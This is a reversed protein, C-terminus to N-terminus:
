ALLSRLVDLTIESVDNVVRHAQTAQEGVGVAVMGAAIISEVGAAADEVGICEAPTVGLKQAAVLFVEPDPKSRTIDTGDAVADVHENLGTRQLVLAANRSSSAIGRAIGASKLATLLELSGNLVDASTMTGIYDVYYGNKRAAQADFEEQPPLPRNNLRYIIKLSEARSVGRLLHNDTESFQMGLEVALRSWGLYHFHDTSVLVGDLDFIVARLM